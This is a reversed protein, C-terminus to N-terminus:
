AGARDTDKIGQFITHRGGRKELRARVRDAQVTFGHVRLRREFKGDAWASWVTLVGGSKLAAYTAAVGDDDYLGLNASATFAAPGNDVDLVIADFQGPNARLVIGVDRVDVQVRLDKLPYGALSALLGRNWEVVAPVLEAVTVIADAPLLDLTARLTFGMGLGGVLVCPREATQAHRCATAALAEESWRTRSSMLTKGDVLILFEGDHVTLRMESGDPTRTKGLLEWAKM